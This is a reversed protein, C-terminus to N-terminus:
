YICPSVESRPSTRLRGSSPSVSKEDGGVAAAASHMLLSPDNARTTESPKPLKSVRSHQRGDDLVKQSQTSMLM